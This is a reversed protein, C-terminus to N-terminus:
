HSLVCYTDGPNNRGGSNLDIDGEKHYNMPFHIAVRNAAHRPDILRMELDRLSLPCGGAM